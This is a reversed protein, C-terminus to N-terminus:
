SSFWEFARLRFGLERKAKANSAGRLRTAYYVTDPGAVEEAQKETVRPPEPANVFRAFAPLWVRQESPQDDVVNYVGPDCRLALVTAAAADDIHVFSWVGEGQGIVPVKGERVQEGVDGDTNFWTGPGYFFGYRLAVGQLRTNQFLESELSAYTHTGAAIGPTADFAFPEKEDATGAGPAYWFAASQLIYRSVGAAEAGALLNAHGTVRLRRDGEAAAKMDAPTYHKPLATLQNIIVDPRVRLLADRVSQADLVDAKVAGAGAKTLAEAADDSRVMGIAEHSAARLQRVIARGIAGTAGALLIKM